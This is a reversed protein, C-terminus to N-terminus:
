RTLSRRAVLERVKDVPLGPATRGDRGTVTGAAVLSNHIAEETADAVATFLSTLSAEDFIRSVRVRPGDSHPIRVEPATSFAIAYDGSGHSFSAGTRAMGAFSRRALRELQRADLPADTAIVIMCSGTRDADNASALLAGVPIGDMTLVGGFNTQVLVGITFGGEAPPLRRSSTGIGGKYGLARTGTGAGVSGEAVPGPRAKALAERFHGPTLSRRRIDNLWGDNTEGVVPNVSQVDGNGPTELTYAVLASAADWVALTNTLIIPTELQGLEQVQTFGVLKGFGNQVAIAAPVKQQFVNGEHPIIATAGTRVDTGISVTIHGVAVGPVDTIANQPGPQGDGFRLGLSRARVPKPSSAPSAHAACDFSAFGVLLLAIGLGLKTLVRRVQWVLRPGRWDAIM